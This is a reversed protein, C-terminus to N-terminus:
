ASVSKLSQGAIMAALDNGLAKKANLFAAVKGSAYKVPNPEHNQDLVEKRNITAGKGDIGAASIEVDKISTPIKLALIAM